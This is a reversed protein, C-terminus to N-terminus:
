PSASAANASTTKPAISHGGNQVFSRSGLCNYFSFKTTLYISSKRPSFAVYFHMDKGEEARLPPSQRYSDAMNGRVHASWAIMTFAFSNRIKTTESVEVGTLDNWHWQLCLFWVNDFGLTDTNDFKAIEDSKLRILKIGVRYWYLYDFKDSFKPYSKLLATLILPYDSIWRQENSLQVCEFPYIAFDLLM